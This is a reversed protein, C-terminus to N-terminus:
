REFSHVYVDGGRNGRAVPAAAGRAGAAAMSVGACFTGSLTEYWVWVSWECEAGGHIRRWLLLLLMLGRRAAAAVDVVSAHV